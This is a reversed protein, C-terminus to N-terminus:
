RVAKSLNTKNEDTCWPILPACREGSPAILCLQSPHVTGMVVQCSPAGSAKDHSTQSSLSPITDNTIVDILVIHYLKPNEVKIITAFYIM